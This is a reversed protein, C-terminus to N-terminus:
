QGKLNKKENYLRKDAEIFWDSWKHMDKHYLACGISVDLDFPFSLKQISDHIRQCLDEVDNGKYVIVFEDGGYRAIFDSKEICSEKLCNAIAKLALDGQAHGHEDNIKKFRNVDLVLLYMNLDQSRVCEFLYQEMRNRNNLQTLPDISIMQEELSIYVILISLSTGVCFVPIDRFFDQITGILLLSIMYIGLIQNSKKQQYNKARYSYIYAQYAGIIYYIDNILVYLIYLSGNQFDGSQDIYFLCGNLTNVLLLVVSIIVPLMSFFTQSKKVYHIGLMTQIYNFWSLTCLSFFLFCMENLFLDQSNTTMRVLDTQFYLIHVFVVALFSVKQSNKMMSRYTKFGLVLMIAVCIYYIEAFLIENM